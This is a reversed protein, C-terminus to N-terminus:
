PFHQLRVEQAVIMLALFVAFVSLYWWDPVQVYRSMLRAHIDPQEQLARRSQYWIQKRFYLFTHTFTAVIAAFSVGYSM